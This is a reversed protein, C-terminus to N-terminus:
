QKILKQTLFQGSTKVSIFYIGKPLAALNKLAINNKGQQLNHNARRIIKGESSIITIDAIGKKLANVSFNVVDTFPNPYYGTVIITSESETSVTRNVTEVQEYFGFDYTNNINGEPESNEALTMALGWTQFEDAFQGNDDGDKNNNPDGGNVTSSTYGFPNDVVVIYKGPFLSTFSYNGNADTSTGTIYIGESVPDNNHQVKYLNVSVGELGPENDDKGNNNLDNWVRSGLTLKGQSLGFDYTNNTNGEPEAGATLTIPLGRAEGESNLFVVSKGNNDKDINNDPDGGNVNSISYGYPLTVGVIYNGPPLGCFSYNGNADTTTIGASCNDPVNDNNADPYINVFLGELAPENNDIGNNNLDWWVRSGLCLSAPCVICDSIKLIFGTNPSTSILNDLYAPSSELFGSVYITGAANTAVARAYDTACGGGKKAWVFDGSGNLKLVFLDIQSSSLNYVGAGPDFDVQSLFEGAVYINSTADITIGNGTSQADGNLQKAWIFNGSPDLKSIYASQYYSNTLIFTAPGPDFDTPLQFLGTTYINGTIDLAISRPQAHGTFHKAFVFDGNADLKVIYTAEQEGSLEDTNLKYVGPGPDFDVTDTYNGASYVNGAADLTIAESFFGTPSYINLYVLFHKGWVFDGSSNLKLIFGDLSSTPTFQFQGPGPDLDIVDQFGGNAYVNGLPDVAISKILDTSNSGVQKAWVFNGSNDLKFIFGDYYSPLGFSTLQFVAAGPDFDFTGDFYGGVYVNGTADLGVSTSTNIRDGSIHKVWILNGGPDSKMVYTDYIGTASLNYVAPGPDFDATGTFSGTTYINGAADLAISVAGYQQSGGFRQVWNIAANQGNTIFSCFFFFATLLKKRM